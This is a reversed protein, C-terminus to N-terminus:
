LRGCRPVFDRIMKPLPRRDDQQFSWQFKRVTEVYVLGYDKWKRGHLSEALETVLFFVAFWWSM